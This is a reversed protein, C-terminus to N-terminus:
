VLRTKADPQRQDDNMAIAFYFQAKVSCAAISWRMFMNFPLDAITVPAALPM